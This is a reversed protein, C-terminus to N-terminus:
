RSLIVDLIYIYILKYITCIYTHIYINAYNLHFNGMQASLDGGLFYLNDLLVGVSFMLLGRKFQQDPDYLLSM